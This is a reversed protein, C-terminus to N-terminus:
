GSGKGERLMEEPLASLPMGAASQELGRIGTKRGGFNYAPRPSFPQAKCSRGKNLVAANTTEEGERAYFGRLTKLSFMLYNTLTGRTSMHTGVGAVCDGTRAEGLLQAVKRLDEVAIGARQAVYEPTYDQVAKALEEFGTANEAVFSEDVAHNKIILHILGAFVTPDEGPIIQLHVAAKRATETKRPDIVILQCGNKVMDKLTQGPNPALYQKSIIPNGGAILYVECNKPRMQSGAWIGHMAGAMDLGPQDITTNTYFRDSGIAALFGRMLNVAPWNELGANGFSAAVAGPGNEDLIKKVEAAIDAVLEESSIRQYSGDPMRKLHHTLRDPDNHAATLARGKPCIFGEYLPAQKNGEVKTVVGDELTVNVPCLAPCSRCTSQKVEKM